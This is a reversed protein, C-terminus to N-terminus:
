GIFVIRVTFTALNKKLHLTYHRSNVNEHSVNVHWSSKQEKM